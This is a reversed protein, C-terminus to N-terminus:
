RPVDYRLEVFGRGFTKTSRLTLPKAIRTPLLPIGAGLVVPALGLHIEDLLEARVYQAVLDGGGVLWIAKEGASAAVADFSAGVDGHVFAVDAGEIRPRARNTYVWTKQTYPWPMDKQACLFDYTKGGMVLAGIGALFAEYHEKIGEAGDFALLWDIRHETDAIFGDLTQAVYYITRPRKTSATSM